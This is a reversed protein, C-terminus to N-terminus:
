LNGFPVLDGITRGRGGVDGIAEKQKQYKANFEFNDALFKKEAREKFATQVALMKKYQKDRGIAQGDEDYMQGLNLFNPNSILSRMAVFFDSEGDGDDDDNMYKILDHQEDSTLKLGGISDAPYPLGLGSQLMFNYVLNSKTKNIPFPSFEGSKEMPDGFLTLKPKLQINFFPSESMTQNHLEYFDIMGQPLDEDFFDYWSDADGGSFMKAFINDGYMQESTINYDLKEGMDHVRQIYSSFGDDFVGSMESANPLYKSSRGIPRAATGVAVDYLKNFARSAFGSGVDEAAYDMVGFFDGLEGTLDVWAQSAFYPYLANIAATAVTTTKDLFDDDGYQSPKSLLYGMDAGIAFIKAYPELKAYSVSTYKGTESNYKAISYPLFGEAYFADRENKDVPAMGTIIFGSKTELDRSAYSWGAVSLMISTGTFMRSIAMQKTSIDKSFLDKRINESLMGTPLRKNTERFINVLTKYFPMFVKITPNNAFRQMDKFFGDPLEEQFTRTQMRDYILDIESDLPTLITKKMAEEAQAKDGTKNLIKYYKKRAIRALEVDFIVGKTFEDQWIMAHKPVNAVSGIYDLGKAIVSNQYGPGLLRGSLADGEYRFDLKSTLNDGSKWGANAEQWGRSAGHKMAVMMDLMEEIHVGHESKLGPIKNIQSAVGTEVLDMVQMLANGGANVILTWPHWLKANVYVEVFADWWNPGRRKAEKAAYRLQNDSLTSFRKLTGMFVDDTPLGNETTTYKMEFSLDDSIAKIEDMFEQDTFRGVDINRVIAGQQMGTRVSAAGETVLISLYNLHNMFNRKAEDSVGTKIYYETINKMKITLLKAEVLARVLVAPQLVEGEKRNALASYFEDAQMEEAAKKLDDIKLKPANENIRKSFINGIVDSFQPGDFLENDGLLKALPGKYEELEGLALQDLMTQLSRVDEQDWEKFMIKGDKGLVYEKAERSKRVIEKIPTRQESTGHIVIKDADGTPLDAGKSFRSAPIFEPPLESREDPYAFAPEGTDVYVAPDVRAEVSKTNEKQAINNETSTSTIGQTTEVIKM